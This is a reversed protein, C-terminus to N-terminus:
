AIKRGPTRAYRRIKVNWYIWARRVQPARRFLGKGRRRYAAERLLTQRDTSLEAMPIHREAEPLFRSYMKGIHFDCTDCWVDRWVTSTEDDRATDRIRGKTSGCEPCEPITM